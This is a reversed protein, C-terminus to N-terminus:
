TESWKDYDGHLYRGYLQNRLLEAETHPKGSGHHLSTNRVIAVDEELEDWETASYDSKVVCRRLSAVVRSLLLPDKPQFYKRLLIAHFVVVWRQADDDEHGLVNLENPLPHLLAMRDYDDVTSLFHGIHEQPTPAGMGLVRPSNRM